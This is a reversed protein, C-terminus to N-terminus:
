DRGERCTRFSLQLAKWLFYKEFLLTLLLIM